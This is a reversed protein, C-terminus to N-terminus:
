RIAACGRIPRLASGVPRTVFRKAASSWPCRGSRLTTGAATPQHRRYRRRPSVQPLGQGGFSIVSGHIGVLPGDRSGYRVRRPLMAIRVTGMSDPHSSCSRQVRSRRRVHSVRPRTPPVNTRGPGTTSVEAPFLDAAASGADADAHMSRAVRCRTTSGPPQAPRSPLVERSRLQTSALENCCAQNDTSSFSRSGTANQCPTSAASSRSAGPHASRAIPRSLRGFPTTGATWASSSSRHSRDPSGRTSTSSSKCRRSSM